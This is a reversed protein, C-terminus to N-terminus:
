RPPPSSLRVRVRPARERPMAPPAANQRALTRKYRCLLSALRTDSLMRLRGLTFATARGSELLASDADIHLYADAVARQPAAPAAPAAPPTPPAFPVLPGRYWAIGRNGQRGELKLPVYGQSYWDAAWDAAPSSAATPPPLCIPGANLAKVKSIFDQGEGECTFRWSDLIFLRAGGSPLSGSAYLGEISVLFARSVKGPCPLGRALLTARPDQMTGDPRESGRVHAALELNDDRVRPFHLALDSYPLHLLKVSGPDDPEGEEHALGDLIALPDTNDGEGSVVSRKWTQAGQPGHRELTADVVLPKSLDANPDAGSGTGIEDEALLVLALWPFPPDADNGPSREWPLTPRSLSIHPLTSAYAGTADAAPYRSHILASELRFRPALVTFSFEKAGTTTRIPCDQDPSLSASLKYSGAQLVPKHWDRILITSASM